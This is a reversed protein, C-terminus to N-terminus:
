KERDQGWFGEILMVVLGLSIAIDAINFVPFQTVGLIPYAEWHFHLFDVVHGYALRDYLNGIAGGLILTLSISELKNHMSVKYLRWTIGVTAVLAVVSFFWRQWGGAQALFGFGAGSNYHLTIDFFPIVPISEGFFLNAEIWVKSFRDVLLLILALLWWIWIRTWFTKINM